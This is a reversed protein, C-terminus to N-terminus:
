QRFIAIEVLFFRSWKPENKEFFDKTHIANSEKGVLFNGLPLLFTISSDKSISQFQLVFSIDIDLSQEFTM